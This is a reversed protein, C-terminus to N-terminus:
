TLYRLTYDDACTLLCTGDPSWKCGKFFTQPSLAQIQDSSRWPCVWQSDLLYVPLVPQAQSLEEGACANTQTQEEIADHAHLPQNEEVPDDGM